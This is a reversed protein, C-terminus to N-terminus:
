TSQKMPMPQICINDRDLKEPDLKLLIKIKLAVAKLIINLYKMNM